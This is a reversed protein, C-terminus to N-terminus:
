LITVGRAAMVSQVNNYITAIEPQTLVRNYMVLYYVTFDHYRQNWFADGLSIRNFGWINRDTYKSEWPMETSGRYLIPNTGTHSISWMHNQNLYSAITIYADTPGVEWYGRRPTYGGSSFWIGTNYGVFLWGSHTPARLNATMCFAFDGTEHIQEANQFVIPNTVGNDFRIGGTVWVPKASVPFPLDYDHGSYDKIVDGSGEDFRWEGLLNGVPLWESPVRAGGGVIGTRGLLSMVIVVVIAIIDV